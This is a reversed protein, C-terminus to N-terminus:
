GSRTAGVVPSSWGKDHIATKWRINQAESFKVPLDTAASKGDGNPGRFQNWYVEEAENEALTAYPTILVAVFALTLITLSIYRM